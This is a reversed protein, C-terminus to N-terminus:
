STKNKLIRIIQAAMYIMGDLVEELAMESWNDKKTGWQRTDDNVQVGHGYRQLGLDMREKILKLIEENQDDMLNLITLDKISNVQHFLQNTRIIM